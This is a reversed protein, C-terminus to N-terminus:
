FLSSPSVDSCVLSIGYIHFSYLHFVFSRCMRRCGYVSIRLILTCIAVLVYLFFFWDRLLVCLFSCCLAGVGIYLRM